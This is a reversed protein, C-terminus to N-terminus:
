PRDKACFFFIQDRLSRGARVPTGSAELLPSIFEDGHKKLSEEIPLYEAVRQEISAAFKKLKSNVEMKKTELDMLNEKYRFPPLSAKPRGVAIGGARRLRAAPVAPSPADTLGVNM